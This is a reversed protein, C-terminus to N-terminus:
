GGKGRDGWKERTARMSKEWYGEAKKKSEGMKGDEDDYFEEELAQKDKIFPKVDSLTEQELVKEIEFTATGGLLNM